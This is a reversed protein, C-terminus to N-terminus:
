RPNEPAPDVGVRFFTLQYGFHQGSADDVNGTYYWWEIKYDPHSVHDAPLTVPRDPTAYKWTADAGLVSVVVLLTLLAAALTQPTRRRREQAGASRREASLPRQIGEGWGEGRGVEGLSRRALLRPSPAGARTTAM